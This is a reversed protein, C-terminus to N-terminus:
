ASVLNCAKWFAQLQSGAELICGKPLMYAGSRLEALRLSNLVPHTSATQVEGWGVLGGGGGGGGRAPNEVQGMETRVFMM